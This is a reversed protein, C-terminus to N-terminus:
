LQQRIKSETQPLTLRSKWQFQDGNRLKDAIPSDAKMELVHRTFIGPARPIPEERTEHHPLDRVIDEIFLEEDLYFIDLDFFTEPMWFYRVDETLYFFFKGDNAGFDEPKVGSLGANQDEPRWALSAHIQDGYPTVLLVQKLPDTEDSDNGSDPQCSCLGFLLLISFLFSKKM